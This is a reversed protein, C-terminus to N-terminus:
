VQIQTLFDVDPGAKTADEFSSPNFCFLTFIFIKFQRSDLGMREMMQKEEKITQSKWKIEMTRGAAAPRSIEGPGNCFMPARKLNTCQLM